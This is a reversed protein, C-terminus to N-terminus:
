SLNANQTRCNFHLQSHNPNLSGDLLNQITDLTSSAARLNASILQPHSEQLLMCSGKRPIPEVPNKIEPDYEKPNQGFKQGRIRGFWMVQGKPDETIDSNGPTIFFFDKTDCVEEIASIIESRSAHNDVTAIILPCLSEDLLPIFTEKDIFEEISTVNDFGKRMCEEVIASAKNRGVDDTNMSQRTMNKTEFDDGDIITISADKTDPNFKLLRALLPILMSGTGGAGIVFVKDIMPILLNRILPLTFFPEPPARNTLNIITWRDLWVVM